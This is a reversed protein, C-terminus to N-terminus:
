RMGLVEPLVTLGLVELAVGVLFIFWWFRGLRTPKVVEQDVEKVRKFKFVKLVTVLEEVTVRIVEINSRGKCFKEAFIKLAIGLIGIGM